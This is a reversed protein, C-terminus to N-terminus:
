ASLAPTTGGGASLLPLRLAGWFRVFHNPVEFFIFKLRYMVPVSHMQKVEFSIHQLAVSGAACPWKASYLVTTGICM